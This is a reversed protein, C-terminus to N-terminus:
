AFKKFSNKLLIAPAPKKFECQRNKFYNRFSSYTCKRAQIPVAGIQNWTIKKESWIDSSFRVIQIADTVNGADMLALFLYSAKESWFDRM